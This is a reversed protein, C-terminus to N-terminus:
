FLLFQFKEIVYQHKLISILQDVSVRQSKMASWGQLFDTNGMLPFENGMLPFDNGM